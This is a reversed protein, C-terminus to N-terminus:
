GKIGTLTISQVFQKEMLLYAILIPIIAMVSAAMMIQYESSSEQVLYKLGIPLTRMSSKNTIILPWTYNRWHGLFSFMAATSIITKSNPVMIQALIRFYGCGDIKAAELMEDPITRFFSYLMMITFAPMIQPLIIGAYTDVLKASSVMIFLPIMTVIIPVFMSSQIFVYLKNKGPFELKALAYATIISIIVDLTMSALTTYISNAYYMLFPVMKFVRAYNDFNFHSPIWKPPYAYVDTSDKFSSLVMWIFPFIMAAVGILLIIFVAINYKKRAIKM